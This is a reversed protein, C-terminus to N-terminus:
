DLFQFEIGDRFWQYQYKHGCKCSGTHAKANVVDFFYDDAYGTLVINHKMIHAVSTGKFLDSACTCPIKLYLDNHHQKFEQRIVKM